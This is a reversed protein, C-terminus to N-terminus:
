DDIFAMGWHAFVFCHEGLVWVHVDHVVSNVRGIAVGEFCVASKSVRLSSVTRLFQLGFVHSRALQRFVQVHSVHSSRSGRVRVICSSSTVEEGMQVLLLHEVLSQLGRMDSLM